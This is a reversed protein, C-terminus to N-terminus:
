TMKRPLTHFDELLYLTMEIELSEEIMEVIEEKMDIVEEIEEETVEEQTIEIAEEKILHIETSNDKAM